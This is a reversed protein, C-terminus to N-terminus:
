KRATKKKGTKSKISKNKIVRRTNRIDRKNSEGEKTIKNGWQWRPKEGKIYSIRILVVTAILMPVVFTTYVETQTSEIGINISLLFIIAVYVLVVLWGQWTSPTWGWGYTKRKFWYTM